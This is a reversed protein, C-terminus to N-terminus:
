GDSGAGDPVIFIQGPYILDPDSIQARNAEFIQTYHVGEGLLNRAIVWLNNGPQIVVVSESTSPVTFAAQQFPTELRAEVEGEGGIQDVRLDYQGEELAQDLTLQWNGDADAVAQGVAEGDVYPVVISGPEAQGSLSVTGEEGYSLSELTLDGGGSIGVGDGPAQLVEVEGEGDRSVIVALVEGSGTGTNNGAELATEAAELTADTADDAGLSLSLGSSTSVTGSASDQSFSSAADDSDAGAVATAGPEEIAPVSMVVVESSEIISGDGAEATLWIEHNGPSLPEELVVVWEGNADAVASGIVGDKTMVTVAAGAAAQGALVGDGTTEVRVIDFSPLPVFEETVADDDADTDDGSQVADGDSGESATSASSSSASSEDTSSGSSSSSESSTGSSAETSDSSTQASSTQTTAAGEDDGEMMFVVIAILIAFVALAAIVQKM